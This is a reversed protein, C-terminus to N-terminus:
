HSQALCNLDGKTESTGFSLPAGRKFPGLRSDDILQSRVETTTAHPVDAGAATTTMAPALATGVGADTVSVATQLAEDSALPAGHAATSSPASALLDRPATSLQAAAAPLFTTTRSNRPTTAPVSDDIPRASPQAEQATTPALPTISRVDRTTAPMSGDFSRASPQASAGGGAVVAAMDLFLSNDYLRVAPSARPESARAEPVEREDVSSATPSLLRPFLSNDYLHLAPSVRPDRPPGREGVSSATPSLLHPPVDLPLELFADENDSPQTHRRHLPENAPMFTQLEQMVCM